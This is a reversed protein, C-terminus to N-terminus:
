RVTDLSRLLVSLRLDEVVFGGSCLIDCLLKNLIYIFILIFKKFIKM